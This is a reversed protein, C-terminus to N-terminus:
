LSQKLEEKTYELKVEKDIDKIDRIDKYTILNKLEELEENTAEKINIDIDSLKKDLDKEM